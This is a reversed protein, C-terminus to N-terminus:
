LVGCPQIIRPHASVTTGNATLNYGGVKDNLGRVLDWYAVLGLPYTDPTAGKALSPIIKEFNNAKDVDTAGPWGSLDWVAAEALDGTMYGDPTARGVRGVSTRDLNIPTRETADTGKSGGDIFARRDTTSAFVACGHQWVNAVFDASTEAHNAGGADQAQAIVGKEVGGTSVGLAYRQNDVDKDVIAIMSFFATIVDPRFWCAMALPPSSLVAQDIELYETSADDFLRAM